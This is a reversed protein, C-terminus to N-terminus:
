MSLTAEDIPAVERCSRRTRSRRTLDFIQKFNTKYKKMIYTSIAWKEYASGFCVSGNEVSLQWKEAFEEPAFRSIMVNLDNILKALREM